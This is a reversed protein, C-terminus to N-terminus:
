TAKFGWATKVQKQRIADETTFDEPDGTKHTKKEQKALEKSEEGMDKEADDWRKKALKKAEGQEFISYDHIIHFAVCTVFTMMFKLTILFINIHIILWRFLYTVDALKM